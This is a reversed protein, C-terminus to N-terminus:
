LIWLHHLTLNAVQQLTFSGKFWGPTSPTTGTKAKVARHEPVTERGPLHPHNTVRNICYWCSNQLNGNNGFIHKPLFYFLELLLELSGYLCPELPLVHNTELCHYLCYTTDNTSAIVTLQLPCLHAIAGCSRQHSHRLRRAGGPTRPAHATSGAGQPRLRASRSCTVYGNRGETQEDTFFLINHFTSKRCKKDASRRGCLCDLYKLRLPVARTSTPSPNPIRSAGHGWGRRGGVVWPRWRGGVGTM